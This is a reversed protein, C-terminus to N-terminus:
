KKLCVEAWKEEIEEPVRILTLGIRKNTNWLDYLGEGSKKM